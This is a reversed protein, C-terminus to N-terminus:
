GSLPDEPAGASRCVTLSVPYSTEYVFGGVVQKGKVSSRLVQSHGKLKQCGPLHPCVTFLHKRKTRFRGCEKGM